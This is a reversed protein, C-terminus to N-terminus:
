RLEKFNKQESAWKWESKGFDGPDGIVKMTTEDIIKITISGQLQDKGVPMDSWTLYIESGKITGHGVHCWKEGLSFESSHKNMGLWFVQNNRVEIWFPNDVSSIWLGSKIM